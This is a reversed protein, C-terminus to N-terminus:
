YLNFVASGPLIGVMGAAVQNGSEDYIKMTGDGSLSPEFVFINGDYPNVDIGYYSGEIMPNEPIEPSEANVKYVGDPRLYFISEGDASMAIRPPTATYDGAMGVKGQWVISGPNAPDIKILLADTESILDYPPDWNNVALGKCYVWLNRNGDLAMDLPVKGVFITDVVQDTATAIVSITSDAAWGGSNAVYVADNLSIMVEPGFGVKVSDYKEYSTLDFLYVYGELKGGTLYGKTDSVPMFHRPYPVPIPETITRFTRLDVIELKESGNVVIYGITDGALTLSQVVDGLPRGNAADFIGNIIVGEAPNFYSISGNNSQFFGENVIYIGNSYDTVTSPADSKECGTLLSLVLFVYIYLVSSKM